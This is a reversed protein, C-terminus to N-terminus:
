QDLTIGGGLMKLSGDIYATAINLTAPFKNPLLIKKAIWYNDSRGDDFSISVIAKKM